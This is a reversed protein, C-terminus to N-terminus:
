KFPFLEREHDNINDYIFSMLKNFPSFASKEGSYFYEYPSYGWEKEPLSLNEESVYISFANDMYCRDDEGITTNLVFNRFSSNLCDIVQQSLEHPILFENVALECRLDAISTIENLVKVKLQENERSILVIKDNRFDKRYTISMIYSQKFIEMISQILNSRRTLFEATKILDAEFRTLYSFDLGLYVTQEIDTLYDVLRILAYNYKLEGENESYKMLFSFPVYYDVNDKEAVESYEKWFDFESRSNKYNPYNRKMMEYALRENVLQIRDAAAYYDKDILM